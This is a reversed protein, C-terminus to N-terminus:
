DHHHLCHCQRCVPIVDLWHEKAYSPHHYQEAQAPCYHCQLTKVRPMKGRRVAHNVAAKAKCIEPHKLRWQKHNAKGKRSCNYKKLAKLRINRGKETKGYKKDRKCKTARGKESSLYNKQVTKGKETKSYKEVSKRNVAKGKETQSYKAVSAKDCSKCAHSFGDKKSKNRYFESLSKFQKCKSCPKSIIPESM